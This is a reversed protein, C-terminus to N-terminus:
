QLCCKKYKSGSGCPCPDNRGVARNPNHAPAHVSSWELLSQRARDREKRYAETFGCWDAFEAATDGFPLNDEDELWSYPKDAAQALDRRFWDFDQIRPDIYERKFAEEVIPSLEDLGLMGIAMQWGDWVNCTARPQITEFGDRLFTAVEARELQGRGVLIALAECMRARIFQNAEPDLIIDYIAQPDGDFVSIMVRHSTQTIADDLVRDLEDGGMRMFRALAPYAATERWEALLHVMFFIADPETRQDPHAIYKEIEAIFLPALTERGATAAALAKRPLGHSDNLERIIAQADL